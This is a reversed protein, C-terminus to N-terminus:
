KNKKELKWQLFLQIYFLLTSPLLNEKSLFLQPPETSLEIEIKILYMPGLVTNPELLLSVLTSCHLHTDIRLLWEPPLNLLTSHIYNVHIQFFFNNLVTV